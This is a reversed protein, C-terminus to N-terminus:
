KTSLRLFVWASALAYVFFMPGLVTGPNSVEFSVGTFVVLMITIMSAVMRFPSYGIFGALLKFLGVFLFIDGLATETMVTSLLKWASAGEFTSGPLLLAIGIASLIMGGFFEVPETPSSILLKIRDRVFKEAAQRNLRDLEAPSIKMGLEKLRGVKIM